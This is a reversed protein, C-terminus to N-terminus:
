EREDETETETQEEPKALATKPPPIFFQKNEQIVKLVEEKGLRTEASTITYSPIEEWWKLLGKKYAAISKALENKSLKDAKTFLITFPVENEGCWHMFEADVLQLPLRADLLIFLCVLSERKTIYDTILKEFEEKASKSAKAFGYGPLDVLYWEDNIIFHNILKTKGPTASTKALKNNNCLM